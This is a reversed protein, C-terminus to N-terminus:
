HAHAAKQEAPEVATRPAPTPSGPAGAWEVRAGDAFTQVAPWALEGATGPNVAILGFEAFREPELRGEWRLAVIVGAANRLPTVTWGPKDEFSVARVGEPVRVEVAVTAVAKENPVRVVYKEHAAAVSQKPWVTVHAAAASGAAMAVLALGLRVCLTTM